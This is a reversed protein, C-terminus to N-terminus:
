KLLFSILKRCKKIHEFELPSTKEQLKKSLEEWPMKTDKKIEKALNLAKLIIDVNVNIGTEDKGYDSAFFAFFDVLDEPKMPNMMNIVEEKMGHLMPTRVMRPSILNVNINNPKLEVALGETFGILSHKSMSYATWGPLAINTALSGTSIISGGKGTEIMKPVCVHTFYYPGLVNTKLINDIKELTLKKHLFPYLRSYGANNILIDIHGFFEMGVKVANACDEYNQVNAAVTIARRGKAEVKEKTENMREQNRGVVIIDASYKAFGISLAKGIGSSAGTILAVKGELIQEM